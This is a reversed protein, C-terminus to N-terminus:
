SVLADPMSGIYYISQSDDLNELTEKLLDKTTSLDEWYFEDIEGSPYPPLKQQALEPDRTELLDVTLDYFAQLQPKTIKYRDGMFEFDDHNIVAWDYFTTTQM